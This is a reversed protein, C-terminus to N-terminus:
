QWRSVAREVKMYCSDYVSSQKGVKDPAGVDKNSKVCVGVLEDIVTPILEALPVKWHFIGREPNWTVNARFASIIPYAWGNPVRYDVTEGLFHLKVGKNKASGTRSNGIKMSSYTFGNRKAADPTLKKISDHLVLIDPLRSTLLKAVPGNHKADELFYKLGYQQSNYLSTPYKDDPFREMNFMEMLSLIHTIYFDGSDGQHYAIEDAGTKERMVDKIREFEGSLEALSPNDVQKSRNLGEAMEVVKDKEIGSMVHIRVFAEQLTQLKTKDETDIADIIAAYTHGGNVIGHVKSDSLTLEIYEQSGAEKYAKVDEVLLYIGQNKIAMDSPNEFLTDMIGKIVSGKLADKDDRSPIRPNVRMYDGLELPIDTARVFCNGLKAGNISALPQSRFSDVPIKISTKASKRLGLTKNSVNQM